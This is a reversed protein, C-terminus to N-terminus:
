HAHGELAPPRSEERNLIEVQRLLEPIPDWGPGERRLWRARLYGQRDILFEIHDPVPPLQGVTARYMTYAAAVGAEPDALISADIGRVERAATEQMPVAIVRVGAHDLTGASHALARLRALSGPLTYFVLLVIRRGRLQALSEQPRGGIQFTFDPAVIPHWPFVSANMTKGEEAEAQARLFNIVDWLRDESIRDSFGPMPTGEIGHQLWWLLDGERHHLLHETLNAPKVPLAAAALGDGYGHPGHCATCHQTYLPAGRAISAATYRVPSRFYTSPHAPTALLWACAALAGLLAAAGAATAVPKRTRAGVTILMAALAILAAAFIGGSDKAADWSFTYPFPWVTQVHLAPITVGLAGVVGVVTLGLGTEAIANCQLRRLAQVASGQAAETSAGSLRPTLRLRNIAALAVMAGFLLLKALLLRGYDTGFMAPVSGVTYWANAAGTLVLVGVSTVGM